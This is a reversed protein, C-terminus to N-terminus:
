SARRKSSRRAARGSTALARPQSVSAKTPNVRNESFIGNIIAWLVTLGLNSLEEATLPIKHGSPNGDEDPYELDWGDLVPLLIDVAADVRELAQEKTPEGGDPGVLPADIELVRHIAAPSIAAPRYVVHLSGGGIAIDTEARNSTLAALTVPM